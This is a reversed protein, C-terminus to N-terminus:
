KEGKERSKRSSLNHWKLRGAHILYIKLTRFKLTPVLGLEKDRSPQPCLRSSFAIYRNDTQFLGYAGTIARKRRGRERRQKEIRKKKKVKPWM